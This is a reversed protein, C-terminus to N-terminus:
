KDLSWKEKLRKLEGTRQIKKLANNFSDIFSKHKIPAILRIAEESVPQDIVRLKDEYLSEIYAKAALRGIVLADIRGELLDEFANEIDLYSEYTIGNIHQLKLVDNSDMRVGVRKGSLASVVRINSIKPVVLVAGVELIPNSFAYLAQNKETKPLTSFAADYVGDKLNALLTESSAVARNLQTHEERSIASLVEFAFGTLSSKKSAAEVGEWAPPVAINKPKPMFHSCGLLLVFSFIMFANAHRLLKELRFPM